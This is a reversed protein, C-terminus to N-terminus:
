VLFNCKVRVLIVLKVVLLAYCFVAVSLGWGLTMAAYGAVISRLFFAVVAYM